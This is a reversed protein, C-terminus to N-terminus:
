ELRDPPRVPGSQNMAALQEPTWPEDQEAYTFEMCTKTFDDIPQDTSIKVGQPLCRGDMVADALLRLNAAITERDALGFRHCGNISDARHAIPGAFNKATLLM